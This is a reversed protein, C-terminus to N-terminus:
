IGRIVVDHPRAAVAYYSNVGDRLHTPVFLDINAVARLAQLKNKIHHVQTRDKYSSVTKGKGIRYYIQNYRQLIDAKIAAPPNDRWELGNGSLSECVILTYLTMEQPNLKLTVCENSGDLPRFYAEAHPSSIDIVLQCDKREHEYAILDFLTRHFGRYLFKESISQRVQAAVAESLLTQYDDLLAQIRAIPDSGLPIHLFQAYGTRQAEDTEYRDIVASEHTKVLLSPEVGQMPLGLKRCLLDRCFRSTSMTQLDHCIRETKQQSISPIMYHVVKRLYSPSMTRYDGVVAPIYVLRFGANAFADTLASLHREIVDTQTTTESEVYFVQMDDIKVDGSAVSYVNAQGSLAQELALMQIAELPVCDNDALSLQRQLAMVEQQVALPSERLLAVADAFDLMKAESLLSTGIDLGEASIVREFFDMESEDVVFDAEILDSLVRAIAIKTTRDLTM